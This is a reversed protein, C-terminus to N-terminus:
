HLLKNTLANGLQDFILTTEASELQLVLSSNPDETIRLAVAWAKCLDYRRM